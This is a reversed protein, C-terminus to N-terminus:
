SINTPKHRIKSHCVSCLTILNNPNNDFIGNKHHCQIDTYCKKGCMKCKWNDRKYINKRLERWFKSRYFIESLSSIGGKWNPHNKGSIKKSQSIQRCRISCNIGRGQNIRHRKAIFNKNCIPCTREIISNKYRIKNNHTYACVNSCFKLGWGYYERNCNKCIGNHKKKSSIM